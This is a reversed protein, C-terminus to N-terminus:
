IRGQYQEFWEGALFVSGVILTLDDKQHDALRDLSKCPLEPALENIMSLLTDSKEGRPNALTYVEVSYCLPLLLRLVDTINKDAAAGFVLHGKREGYTAQWTEVFVEIAQVNHACDIIMTQGTDTAIQQFRASWTVTAFAHRLADEQPEYGCAKFAELALM